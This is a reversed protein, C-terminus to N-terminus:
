HPVQAVPSCQLVPIPTHTPGHVGSVQVCIPAVQPIVFSPQVAFMLQPLQMVPCFQTFPCQTPIHVGPM